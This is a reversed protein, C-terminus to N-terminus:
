LPWWSSDLVRLHGRREGLVPDVGAVDARLAVVLVELRDDPDRDLVVLRDPDPDVPAREVLGQQGLEHVGVRAGGLRAVGAVHHDLRHDFRRHARGLQGLRGPETVVPDDQRGLDRADGVQDVDVAQERRAAVVREMEAQGLGPHPHLPDDGRGGPEREQQALADAVRDPDRQGRLGAAPRSSSTSTAWCTRWDSPSRENRGWTLAQGPQPRVVEVNKWSIARSM